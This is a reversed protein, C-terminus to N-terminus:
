TDIVLSVAITKKAKFFLECRLAIKSNNGVPDGAHLWQHPFLLATNRKCPFSALVSAKSKLRGQRKEKKTLPKTPIYLTTGSGTEDGVGVVCDSLYILMTAVSRQGTHPHVNSGDRHQPMGIHKPEYELFRFWPMCKLQLKWTSIANNIGESVWGNEKHREPDGPNGEWESLFRRPCTPRSLDLPIQLRLADICALFEEPLANTIHYATQLQESKIKTSVTATVPMQISTVTIHTAM